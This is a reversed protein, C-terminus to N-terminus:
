LIKFYCYTYLSTQMTRRWWHNFFHVFPSVMLFPMLYNLLSLTLLFELKLLLLPMLTILGTLLLLMTFLILSIWSTLLTCKSLLSVLLLDLIFSFTEQSFFIFHSSFTVLILCALTNLIRLSHSHVSSLHHLITFKMLHHMSATISYLMLNFM